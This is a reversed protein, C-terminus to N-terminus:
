DFRPVCVPIQTSFGVCATGPCYPSVGDVCVFVCVGYDRCLDPRAEAPTATALLGLTVFLAAFALARLM